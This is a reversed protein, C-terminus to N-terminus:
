SKKLITLQISGVKIGWKTLVSENIITNEDVLFMWDDVALDLTGKNYKIRLTYSLNMANGAVTACGDGIVDGAKATYGGTAAPTLTWTRYQIEGDDFVFREELTGVGEKWYANITANFYRTVEGGRNKVVGHATLNGNFFTEAHLAPVRDKYLDINQNACGALVAILFIVYLTNIKSILKKM